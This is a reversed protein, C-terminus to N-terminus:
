PATLGCVEHLQNWLETSDGKTLEYTSTDLYINGEKDFAFWDESDDEGGCYFYIHPVQTFDVANGSHKAKFTGLLEVLSNQQEGTLAQLEKETWPSAADGTAVHAIGTSRLSPPTINQIKHSSMDILLFLAALFAIVLMFSKPRNAKLYKKRVVANAAIMEPSEMAARLDDMSEITKTKNEAPAEEEVPEVSSEAALDVTEETNMELDKETDM